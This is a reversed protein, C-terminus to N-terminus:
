TVLGTLYSSNTSAIRRSPKNRDMTLIGRSSWRNHSACNGDRPRAAQDHPRSLFGNQNDFVVGADRKQFPTLEFAGVIAGQDSGCGLFRQPQEILLRHIQDKQIVTQRAARVADAEMGLQLGGSVLHGDDEDGAEGIFLHGNAGQAGAHAIEDGLGGSVEVIEGFGDFAHEVLHADYLGEDSGLLLHPLLGLQEVQGVVDDHDAIQVVADGVPVLAGFPQVAPRLALRGAPHQVREQVRLKRPREHINLLVKQLRSHPFALQHLM